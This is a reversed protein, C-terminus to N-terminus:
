WLLSEETEAKKNNVYIGEIDRLQVRICLRIYIIEIKGGKEKCFPQTIQIKKM